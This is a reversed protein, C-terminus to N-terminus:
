APGASRGSSCPRWGSWRRSRSAPRRGREGPGASVGLVVLMLFRTLLVGLGFACGPRVVGAAVAPNLHAGSVGGLAYVLALVVPGFALAVGVRTVAGTAEHAAIAGTGAFVPVFTGIAEAALRRRMPVSM